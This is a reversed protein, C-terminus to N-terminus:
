GDRPRIIVSGGLSIADLIGLLLKSEDEIRPGSAKLTLKGVGKRIDGKRGVAKAEVDMSFRERLEGPLRAPEGLVVGPWRFGSVSEDRGM